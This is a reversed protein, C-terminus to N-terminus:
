IRGLKTVLRDLADAFRKKDGEGFPPLGGRVEDGSRLEQLLNRTALREGVNELDYIEGHPSLGTAGKAVIRSALPIDATIVLDGAAVHEAIHNDAADFTGAVRLM